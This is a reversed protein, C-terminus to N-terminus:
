GPPKTGQMLHKESDPNKKGVVTGKQGGQIIMSKGTAPNVGTAKWTKGKATGASIKFIARVNNKIMAGIIKWRITVTKQYKQNKRQDQFAKRKGPM